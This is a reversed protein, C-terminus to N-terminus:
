LFASRSGGSRGIVNGADGRGDVGGGDGGGVEERGVGVM